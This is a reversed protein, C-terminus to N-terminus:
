LASDGSDVQAVVRGSSGPMDGIQQTGVSAGGSGRGRGSQRANALPGAELPANRSQYRDVVMITRTRAGAARHAV